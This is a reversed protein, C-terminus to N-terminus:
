STPWKEERYAMDWFLYEYRGTIQFLEHLKEKQKPPLDETLGDLTAALWDVYQQFGQSTWNNIFEDWPSKGTLKMKVEMWSDLYVKEASYLVTFGEVFGGNYATSM